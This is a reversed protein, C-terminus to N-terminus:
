ALEDDNRGNEDARMPVKNDEALVRLVADALIDYARKLREEDPMHRVNRLHHNASRRTGRKNTTNEDM